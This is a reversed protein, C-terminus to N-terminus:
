TDHMHNRDQEPAGPQWVEDLIAHVVKRDYEARKAYRKLTTRDTVTYQDATQARCTTPKCSCRQVQLLPKPDSIRLGDAVTGQHSSCIVSSANHQLWHVSVENAM